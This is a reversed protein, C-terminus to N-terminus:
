HKTRRKVMIKAGNAPFVFELLWRAAPRQGQYNDPFKIDYNTLLHSMFMKLQFDVLFRGPCSNRGRGFILLNATSLFAHPSWNGGAEPAGGEGKTALQEQRLRVFRFPDFADADTFHEEDTHMPQSVFSVLAGRPLEVGTDTRVGDVMVKRVLARTPVTNLRLTERAVSDAHVMRTINQKTWLKAADGGSEALFSEAERRLVAITDHAAESGLINMLMNSMAFSAQYIFGLNAMLLRRTMQSTELEEPRNKQAYRLMKQLLDLPDNSEDSTSKMYAIREKFVADYRAELSSLKSRTSWCVLPGVLPRLFEPTFGTVGANAVVGDITNMITRLYDEDRCLPLGVAFRSGTQNVIMRMTDLLDLTKWNETDVGLHTDIALQLEEHVPLIYDELEQTLIHRALLHPWTDVMYKEDGLSHGLQFMENFAEWMGLISAPQSLAWKMSSHPLFIEKRTGLTPVVVPLGRKSFKDWVNRYLASCNFYFSLRTWLSFHRQGPKEGVLDLDKHFPRALFVRYILGIVVAVVALVLLGHDKVTQLELVIPTARLSPM